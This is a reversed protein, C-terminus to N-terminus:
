HSTTTDILLRVRMHVCARVCADHRARFCVSWLARIAYGADASTLLGQIRMDRIIFDESAFAFLCQDLFNFFLSIM